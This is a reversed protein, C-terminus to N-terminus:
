ISDKKVDCHKCYEFQETFGVYSTWSHSCEPLTLGLPKEENKSSIKSPVIRSTPLSFCSGFQVANQVAVELAALSTIGEPRVDLAVEKNEADISTVEAAVKVVDREFCQKSFWDPGLGYQGDWWVGIEGTSYNLTHVYGYLDTGRLRVVDNIKVESEEM